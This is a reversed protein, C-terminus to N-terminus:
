ARPRIRKEAARLKVRAAFTDSVYAARSEPHRCLGSVISEVFVLHQWDPEPCSVPPAYPLEHLAENMVRQTGLPDHWRVRNEDSVTECATLFFLCGLAALSFRMM